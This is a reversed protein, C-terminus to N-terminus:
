SNERRGPRLRGPDIASAKGFGANLFATAIEVVVFRFDAFDVYPRPVGSVSLFHSRCDLHKRSGRELFRARGTLTLRASDLPDGSEDFEGVLLSCKPDARLATTHMSLESVLVYVEGGPTAGVAVRSVHPHGTEPHIVGLSGTMASEILRCAIDEPSPNTM